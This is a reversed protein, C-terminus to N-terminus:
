MALELFDSMGGAPAAAAPPSSIDAYLDSPTFLNAAGPGGASADGFYNTPAGGQVADFDIFDSMYGPSSNSTLAFDSMYTPRSGLQLPFDSMGIARAPLTNPAFVLGVIKALVAAGVGTAAAVAADRGVWKQAAAVALLGVGASAVIGPVGTLGNVVPILAPLHNAAAFGLALPIASKAAKKGLDKLSGMNVLKNLFPISKLGFNRRRRNRGRRLRRVGANHRLSLRRGRRRAHAKRGKRRRAHTKRGKRNRRHRRNRLARLFNRRRGRARNRRRANKKRKSKGKKTKVSCFKAKPWCGAAKMLEIKAKRKAVIPAWRASKMEGAYGGAGTFYHEAVNNRRRRRSGRRTGCRNLAFRSMPINRRRGRARNRRRKSGRIKGAKLAAKYKKALKRLKAKLGGRGKLASRNQKIFCQWSSVGRSNRRKRRNRTAMTKKGEGRAAKRAAKRKGAAGLGVPRDKCGSSVWGFFGRQKSTLSRGRVTGDHLIQRAKFPSLKVGKRACRRSRRPFLRTLKAGRPPNLLTVELM